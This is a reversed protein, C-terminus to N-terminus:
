ARSLEPELQQLPDPSVLFEKDPEIPDYYDAPLQEEAIATPDPMPAGLDQIIKINENEISGEMGELNIDEVESGEYILALNKPLAPGKEAVRNLQNITGADMPM